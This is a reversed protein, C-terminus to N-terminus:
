RETGVRAKLADILIRVKQPRYRTAPFVAFVGGNPLSWKPLVRVLRGAQVDAAAAVESLVALGGGAVAAARLAEATNISLRSQFHVTRREKAPGVFTHVLPQSLVSLAIFPLEALEEPQTLKPASALVEPAAVLWSAFDAVRVAQHTSDALKGLRIAVDIGESVLDFLRDGSLLEIKLSPHRKALTVALPAIVSAGYDVPATVRLTGRLDSSEQGIANVAEEAAHVISKAAEYFAEGAETLALRRTTRILLNAGVEAELRQMHSSVMTKALGLRGAAGTLSGIEVVSVFVVLRNLNIGSLTTSM